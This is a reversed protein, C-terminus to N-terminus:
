SVYWMINEIHYNRINLLYYIFTSHTVFVARQSIKGTAGLSALIHAMRASVQQARSKLTYSIKKGQYYIAAYHPKALAAEKLRQYMTKEEM